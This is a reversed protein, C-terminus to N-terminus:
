IEDGTKERVMNALQIRSAAGTKTYIHHTHDKVTQLTIFLKESIAKNTKGSCIERIIEAERKSIEYQRCFEDFGQFSIPEAPITPSFKTKMKVLIPLLISAAFLILITLCISFYGLFDFFAGIASYGVVGLFYILFQQIGFSENDDTKKKKRFAYLLFLHILFNAFLFIRIIYIDPNGGAKIIGHQFFFVLGVTLTVVFLLVVLLSLDSTKNQNISAGFKLLMFWSVALFPIGIVPIFIALKLALAQSIEIDAIIERLALNGWISYVFFSILFIQQYLLILFATKQHQHFLQYATLIGVVSLGATAVFTVIFTLYQILM